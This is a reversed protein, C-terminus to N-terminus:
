LNSEIKDEELETSLNHLLELIFLKKKIGCCSCKSGNAGGLTCLFPIFRPVPKDKDIDIHLREEKECCIAEVMAFVSTQNVVICMQQYSLGNPSQHGELRTKIRNRKLVEGLARNVHESGSMKEDVCSRQTPNSVFWGVGM